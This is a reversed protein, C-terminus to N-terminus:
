ALIHAWADQVPRPTASGGLFSPLNELGLEEGMMATAAADDGPLIVIKRRTIPDIFPEVLKYARQFAASTGHIFLVDLREVYHHHVAKAINIGGMIDFNRWAPRRAPPNSAPDALAVSADIAYYIFRHCESADSRPIHNGGIFITLGRGRRDPGQMFVKEQALENPIEREQVRGLPAFAARWSAHSALDRAARAPDWSRARLWRKLQMDSLGEEGGQVLAAEVAAADGLAARAAAVLAAAEDPAPEWGHGRSRARIGPPARKTQTLSAAGGDPAAGCGEAGDAGIFDVSATTVDSDESAQSPDVALLRRFM